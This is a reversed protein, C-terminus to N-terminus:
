EALMVQAAKYLLARMISDRCLSVGGARHREGSQNLMPMLGVAPGVARSNIFRAPIDITSILARSTGDGISPITMSRRCANDDRIISRGKRHLEM